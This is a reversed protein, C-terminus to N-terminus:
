SGSPKNRGDECALKVWILTLVVSYVLYFGILITRLRDHHETQVAVKADLWPNNFFVVGVSIFFGSTAFYSIRTWKTLKKWSFLSELLYGIGFIIIGIGYHQYRGISVWQQIHTNLAVIAFIAFLIIFRYRTTRDWIFRLM